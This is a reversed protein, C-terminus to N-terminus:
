KRKTAKAALLNGIVSGATMVGFLLVLTTAWYKTAFDIPGEVREYKETMDEITPILENLAKQTDATTQVIGPLTLAGMTHEYRGLM